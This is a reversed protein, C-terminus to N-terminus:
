FQKNLIYIYINGTIQFHSIKLTKLDCNKLFLIGFLENETIQNLISKKKKDVFDCHWVDRTLKM